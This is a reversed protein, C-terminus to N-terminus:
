AYTTLLVGVAKWLQFIGLSAAVLVIGIGLFNTLTRNRFDQLLSRRNM